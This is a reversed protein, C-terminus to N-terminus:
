MLHSLVLDAIAALAGLVTIVAGSTKLFALVRRGREARRLEKAARRKEDAERELFGRIEDPHEDMLRLLECMREHADRPIVDDIDLPATAM